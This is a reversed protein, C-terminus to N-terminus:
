YIRRPVFGHGIWSLVAEDDYRQERRCEEPTADDPLAIVVLELCLILLKLLLEGGVLLLNAPQLPSDLVGDVAVQQKRRSAPLHARLALLDDCVQCLFQCGCLLVVEHHTAVGIIGRDAWCQLLLPWRSGPATVFAHQHQSATNSRALRAARDETLAPIRHRSDQQRLHCLAPVPAFDARRITVPRTSYSLKSSPSRDEAVQCCSLPPLHLM